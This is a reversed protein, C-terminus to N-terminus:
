EATSGLNSFSRIELIWTWLSSSREEHQCAAIIDADSAGSLGEDRAMAVNHGALRFLEASQHGLNEDLKLKM